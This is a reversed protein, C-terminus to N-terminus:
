QLYFLFVSVFPPRPDEVLFRLLDGFLIDDGILLDDNEESLLAVYLSHAKIGKTGRPSPFFHAKNGEPFPIGTRAKDGRGIM